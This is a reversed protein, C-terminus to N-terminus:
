IGPPPGAMWLGLPAPEWAALADLLAGPDDDSLLTARREASLFRAEVAPHRVAENRLIWAGADERQSGEQHEVRRMLAYGHLEGDLLALVVHLSAAPLPKARTM